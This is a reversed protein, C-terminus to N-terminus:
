GPRKDPAMLVDVNRREDDSLGYADYVLQDIEVLLRAVSAPDAEPFFMRENDKRWQEITASELEKVANNIERGTIADFVPFPLKKLTAQVVKRKRCHSDFWGNAIPSNLVACLQEITVGGTPIVAHFNDSFYLATRSPAAVIRWASGPNRNSNILVKASEFIRRDRARHLHNGYRLWKTGELDDSTLLAYPKLVDLRDIYPEDGSERTSRVSSSDETKIQLGNRVEAVDCL